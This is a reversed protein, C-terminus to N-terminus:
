TLFPLHVQALLRERSCLTATTEGQLPPLRFLVRFSGAQETPNWQLALLPSRNPLRLQLDSKAWVLYPPFQILAEVLVAEANWPIPEGTVRLGAKEYSFRVAQVQPGRLRDMSGFLNRPLSGPCRKFLRWVIFE